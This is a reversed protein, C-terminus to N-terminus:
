GVEGQSQEIEENMVKSASTLYNFVGLVKVDYSNSEQWERLLINVKM